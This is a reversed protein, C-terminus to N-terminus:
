PVISFSSHLGATSDEGAWVDFNATDHVWSRSSSSWYTLEEPGISFRVTKKEHPALSVREFGKLERVPRSSSGSQQHLYLQAVEDGVAESINEIDVTATTSEGRKLNEKGLHLNAFTFRAYSLGYGFPYLPTSEENWYRKGQKAPEHTTNHAYYIPVQGANRPWTFPLKGGPVADGYLLNAIAAGGQTGPYWAELIAAVHSSAWNLNLPRGNILVLIVPKGTAVVAELLEEERGPLDLTSTSAAEGSMNQAEGLVLVAIDSDRALQVARDFEEKSQSDTWPSVKPVKILMDFPSPYKRALQVGQAYQIVGQMGAKHKLGDLVTITEEPNAALAWPGLLDVKSDALPGLVAVKTMINHKLPLTAEENRLLVASREAAIRAEDRHEPNQLTTKAGEEDVYPREFLGLKIKAQLIPMVAADLQAETISGDKLAAELSTSYTTSGVAMEMNVGASFAKLAAEAPTAAYGHTRLNKVADADSV